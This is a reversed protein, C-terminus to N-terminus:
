MLGHKHGAHVIATWATKMSKSRGCSKKKAQGGGGTCIYQYKGEVEDFMCVKKALKAIFQKRATEQFDPKHQCKLYTIFHLWYKTM